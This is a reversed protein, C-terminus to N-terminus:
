IFFQIITMIVVVTVAIFSVIRTKQEADRKANESALLGQELQKIKWQNELALKNARAVEGATEEHRVDHQHLHEDHEQMHVSHERLMTSQQTQKCMWDEQAKLDRTIRAMEAKTAESYDGKEMNKLEAQLQALLTRTGALNSVCLLLMQNIIESIKQQYAFSIKMADMIETQSKALGLTSGQLAEVAKKRSCFGVPKKKAEFAALKAKNAREDAKKLKQELDNLHEFHAALAASLNDATVVSEKECVVTDSESVALEKEQHQDVPAVVKAKKNFIGSVKKKKESM